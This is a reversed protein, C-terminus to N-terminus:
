AAPHSQKVVANTLSHWYTVAGGSQRREWFFGGEPGAARGRGVCRAPGLRHFLDASSRVRVAGEGAGADM